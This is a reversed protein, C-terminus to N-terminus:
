RWDNVAPTPTLNRVNIFGSIFQVPSCGIFLKTTYSNNNTNHLSPIMNRVSDTSNMICVFM